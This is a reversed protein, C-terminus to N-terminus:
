TASEGSDGDSTGAPTYTMTQSRWVLPPFERDPFLIRAALNDGTLAAYGLYSTTLRPNIEVVVPERSGVEPVILDVGVYGQLEPVAACAGLAAAQVRDVDSLDAPVRGGRYVFRGDGSLLQECVPLAEARRRPFLLVGVSVARGAVYPQWIARRLWRSERWSPQLHRFEAADRVLFTEQSGAGDRPKVVAPYHLERETTEHVDFRFTEITAVGAAQLRAALELKDTCLAAAAVSPGLLRGGAAQVLEARGVLIGELEPAIVWTADCGAALERFLSLEAEPNEALHITVGEFPPLGLRRDWTTVVDVDSLRRCDALVARLMAMGERALSSELSPEPWAGGCVYESVFLRV